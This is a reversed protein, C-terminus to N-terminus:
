DDDHNLFGYGHIRVPTGHHKSRDPSVKGCTYKHSLRVIIEYKKQIEQTLLGKKPGKEGGCIRKKILVRLEKEKENLERNGYQSINLDRLKAEIDKITSSM